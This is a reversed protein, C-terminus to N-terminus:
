PSKEKLQPRSEVTRRRRWLSLVFATTLSVLFVTLFILQAVRWAAHDVARRRERGMSRAAADVATEVRNM